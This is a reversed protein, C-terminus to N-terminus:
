DRDGAKESSVEHLVVVSWAHVDYTDSEIVDLSDGHDLGALDALSGFVNCEAEAYPATDVLREWRHNEHPGRLSFTTTHAEMNVLVLFDGPDADGSDVLIQLARDGNHAWGQGSVDLYLYAVDPGGIHSSGWSRQRLAPSAHRLQALARTFVLIPNLDEPSDAEGFVDYYMGSSDPHDPDVPLRMPANSAAQAWNNWIGITNLAWPNNNGNQGRGYEDGSVIMPVGRSLLLIALLGRLRARRLAQDGGSDWSTNDDTGGDSPGFPWSLSTNTRQNYSVLDMLTFGDHATVFNVSKSPGGQDHFHAYDANTQEIFAQTNGDGKAFARVADRYRGNWEAWGSPFNGVEYGWLDWAEAVVEVHSRDALRAIELLLPHQGFFERQRTWDDRHAADPKRGLVPALDFRFGDVGMDHTWYCLSDLTLRCTIENSFNLQNSVGTAGDVLRNDGTLVYYEQAAFGGLSTFSTSDLDGGWHGGEGSHNYVVDLYVEVGAEHFAAVMQKFERTPGGPSRDHAYERNPAFYALTTYGWYNEPPDDPGQTRGSSTSQHVPLLEIVTIGLAKLYPAMYAAGAYTGRLEAPVDAVDEFGPVDALLDSLRSSSPHATLGRVHAEYVVTDEPPLHPREGCYTADVLYVGKPAWRGSDLERRARGRVQEGGTAFVGAEGGAEAIQSSALNHTVERAYPDFLVKNPNFRDGDADVDAVFGAASDGRSWAPDHLWNPGWCRFGYLTGHGVGDIRARWVGDEGRRCDFEAFADVGLAEAYFELLVRTARPAYVAFTVGLAAAPDGAAGEAVGAADSADAAGSSTEVDRWGADVEVDPDPGDASPDALVDAATLPPAGAPHAGLPWRAREWEQPDLATPPTITQETM